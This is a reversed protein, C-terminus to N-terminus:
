SNFEPPQWVTHSSIIPIFLDVDRYDHISVVAPAPIACYIAKLAIDEHYDCAKVPLDSHAPINDPMILQVAEGPCYFALHRDFSGIALALFILVIQLGTRFIM